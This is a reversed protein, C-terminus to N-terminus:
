NNDKVWDKLDDLSITLETEGCTRPAIESENYLFVLAHQEIRYNDSPYMETNNLFGAAHMVNEDKFHYTDMLKQQLLEALAPEYGPKLIDKLTLRRGTEKSFNLWRKVHYAQMGGEYREFNSLYCIIGDGGEQTTTKLIYYYSYWKPDEKTRDAHTYLSATQTKYLATYNRIFSDTAAEPSAMEESLIEKVIERNVADNVAKDQGNAYALSLDFTCLPSVSELLRAVKKVHYTSFPIAPFIKKKRCGTFATAMVIIGCLILIGRKLQKM